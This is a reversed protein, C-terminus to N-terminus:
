LDLQQERSLKTPVSVHKGEKEDKHDQHYRVHEKGPGHCRECSVGMIISSHTFHNPPERYDIYTFHCDVCRGRISRAFQADGDLYGPSNIWRDRMTLYTVNNQYLQDGHWYLFSQGLNSSGIVIDMPVEFEWGFFFVRQYFQGDREVMKFAISPSRTNLINTGSEFSGEIADKQAWRSTLYHPTHVFSEYKEKHCDKCADSGLFGPNEKSSIQDKPPPTPYRGAGFPIEVAVNLKQDPYTIVMSNGVDSPSIFLYDPVPIGKGSKALERWTAEKIPEYKPAEEVVPKTTAARRQRKKLDSVLDSNESSGGGSLFYWAAGVCLLILRVSSGPRDCSTSVLFVELFIPSSSGRRRSPGTDDCGWNVDVQM